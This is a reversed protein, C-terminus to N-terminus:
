LKGAGVNKKDCAIIYMHHSVAYMICKRAKANGGGDEDDTADGDGGVILNM